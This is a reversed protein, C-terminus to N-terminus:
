ANRIGLILNKFIYLSGSFSVEYFFFCECNTCKLKLDSQLRMTEAEVLANDWRETVADSLSGFQYCHFSQTVDCFSAIFRFFRRCLHSIITLKVFWSSFQCITVCKVSFVLRDNIDPVSVAPTATYSFM